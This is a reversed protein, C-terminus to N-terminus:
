WFIYLFEAYEKGKKEECIANLVKQLSEWTFFWLAKM